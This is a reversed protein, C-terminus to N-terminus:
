KKTALEPHNKAIFDDFERTKGEKAAKKGDRIMASVEYETLEGHAPVFKVLLDEIRELRDLIQKELQPSM